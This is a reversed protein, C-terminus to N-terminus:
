PRGYHMLRRMVVTIAGMTVGPASRCADTGRISPWVM